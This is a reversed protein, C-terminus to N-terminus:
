SPVRSIGRGTKCREGNRRLSRQRRHRQQLRPSINYPPDTYIAQAKKGAMLKQVTKADTSDGCVLRHGGLQYLDGLKSKPKKIKELEKDIDFEDDEVALDDFLHSLDSDDFGSELITDM